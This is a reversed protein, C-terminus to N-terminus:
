MRCLCAAVAILMPWILQMALFGCMAFVVGGVACGFPSVGIRRLFLYQFVGALWGGAVGGVIIVKM